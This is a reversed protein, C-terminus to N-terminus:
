NEHNETCWKRLHPLLLRDSDVFDLTDIEDLTAWDLRQHETLRAGEIGPLCVSYAMLKVPGGKNRFDVSTIFSGPKAELGMEERYERVIAEEPSENGDVKGGPFEWRGGMEGTPLRLGILFKGHEYVIGAISKKM